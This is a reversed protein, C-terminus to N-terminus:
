LHDLLGVPIVERLSGDGPAHTLDHYAFSEREIALPM